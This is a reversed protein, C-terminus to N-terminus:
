EDKIKNWQYEYYDDDARCSECQVGDLGDDSLEIADTLDQGSLQVDCKNHHGGPDVSGTCTMTTYPSLVRKQADSLSDFGFDIGRQAIGSVKPQASHFADHEMLTKLLTEM